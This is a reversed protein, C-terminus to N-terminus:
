SEPLVGVRIFYQAYYTVDITITGTAAQSAGGFAQKQLYVSWFWQRSPDVASTGHYSDESAIVNPTVGFVRASSKYDKIYVRGIKSTNPGYSKTKFGGREHITTQGTATPESDDHARLALHGIHHAAESGSDFQVRIKSARVIWKAYYVNTEDYGRPQHGAGTVDPDFMGNGRIQYVLSAGGGDLPKQGGIAVHYRHKIMLGRNAMPFNLGAKMPRTM